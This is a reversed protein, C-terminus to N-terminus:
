VRISRHLLYIPESVLHEPAQLHRAKTKTHADHASFSSYSITVPVTVAQNIKKTEVQDDDEDDDSPIAMKYKPRSVYRKHFDVTPGTHKLQSKTVAHKAALAAVNDIAKHPPLSAHSPSYGGAFLLLLSIIFGSIWRM